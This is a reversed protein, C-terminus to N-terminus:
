LARPRLSEGQPHSREHHRRRVERTAVGVIVLTGVYFVLQLGSPRADYGALAHLLVGLPSESPLLHSTDWVASSWLDVLGSQALARALQSAIAAALVLIFANTVAFLNHPKVRSLGFYILAGIAVGGALGLLVASVMELGSSATGTTLGAVFLVTEAGERLVALAVAIMLARPTRQGARVSSGLQRAELSMEKGHTSVWICHWALMALAATLIGVNVLDQGIGDALAGIKDAGAALALAGIVGALVGGALWSGRGALGRTAAAVIGVFLAAELSERFVILATAFM